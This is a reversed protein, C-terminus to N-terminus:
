KLRSFSKVVWGNFRIECPLNERSLNCSKYGRTVVTASQNKKKKQDFVFITTSEIKEIYSGTNDDGYHPLIM